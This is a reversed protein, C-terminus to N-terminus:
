RKQGRGSQLYKFLGVMSWFTLVGVGQSFRRRLKAFVTPNKGMYRRDYEAQCVNALILIWVALKPSKTMDTDEGNYRPDYHLKSLYFESPHCIGGM